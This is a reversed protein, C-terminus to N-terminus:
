GIMDYAPLSYGSAMEAELKELEAEADDYIKEGNFTLGGPLQMGTFKTLNTGWQKKILQTAYRQLWRDNWVKPFKLPDIVQYAVVLLFQGANVKQWNVDIYFRNTNRNHRIPQKGVLLDELLQIQQFAMYYPVMSQYTLTYLDNLAIQYRINFINNTAIYDGIPFIDVAGIINDPLVIYGGKYGTVVAGSGTSTNITVIPDLQYGAGINTINFKTITGNGDTTLTATAGHGVLDGPGNSITVTDTNSYGSGGSSIIIEKLVDPFDSPQYVYRYYQKEIGDFHYDYYYLLAEDIRDDVQDDDVNIEIVPKGLKRLCYEKFEARTKPTAM